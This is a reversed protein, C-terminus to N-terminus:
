FNGLHTIKNLDAFQRPFKICHAFRQALGWHVHKPQPEEPSGGISGLNKKSSRVDYVCRKLVSGLYKSWKKFKGAVAVPCIDNLFTISKM